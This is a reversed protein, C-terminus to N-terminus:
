SLSLGHMCSPLIAHVIDFDVLASTQMTLTYAIAASDAALVASWSKLSTICLSIKTLTFSSTLMTPMRAQKHRLNYDITTHGNGMSRVVVGDLPRNILSQKMSLNWRSIMSRHRSSTRVFRVRAASGPRAQMPERSGDPFLSHLKRCLSPCLSCLASIHMAVCPIAECRM